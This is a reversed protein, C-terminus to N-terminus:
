ALSDRNLRMKANSKRGRRYERTLVQESPSRLSKSAARNLSFRKQLPKM